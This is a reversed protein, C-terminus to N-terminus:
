VVVDVNKGHSAPSSSPTVYIVTLGANGSIAAQPCCCQSGVGIGPFGVVKCGAISSLVAGLLTAFDAIAGLIVGAGTSYHM